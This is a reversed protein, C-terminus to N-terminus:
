PGHAPGGARPRARLAAAKAADDVAGLVDLRDALPGAARRLAPADGRGVVVLRLDPRQPALRALAALLVPMGKRPEDFRGVFGVAEGRVPLAPGTAPAATGFVSLDVGNPIEVADGGLHRVQV